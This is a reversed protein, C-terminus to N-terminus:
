VHLVQLEHLIQPILPITLPGPSVHGASQFIGRNRKAPFLRQRHPLLPPAEIASLLDGLQTTHGASRLAQLQLCEPSPLTVPQIAADRLGGDITISHEKLSICQWLLTIRSQRRVPIPM